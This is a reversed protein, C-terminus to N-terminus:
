GRSIGNYDEQLMDRTQQCLWYAARQRETATEAPIDGLADVAESLASIVKEKIESAM